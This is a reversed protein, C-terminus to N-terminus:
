ILHQASLVRIASLRQTLIYTYLHHSFQMAVAAFTMEENLQLIGAVMLHKNNSIM